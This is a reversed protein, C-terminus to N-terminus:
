STTRVITDGARAAMPYYCTLCILCNDLRYEQPLGELRAVNIVVTKCTLIPNCQMVLGFMTCVSRSLRPQRLLFISSIPISCHSELWYPNLHQVSSVRELMTLGSDFPKDRRM